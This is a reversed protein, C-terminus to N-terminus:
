RNHTHTHPPPTIAISRGSSYILRRSKDICSLKQNIGAVMFVSRQPEMMVCM